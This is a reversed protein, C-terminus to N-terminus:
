ATLNEIFERFGEKRAPDDTSDRMSQAITVLMEIEKHDASALEASISELVRVDDDEVDDPVERTALYVVSEILARYVSETM